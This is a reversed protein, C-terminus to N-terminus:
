SLVVSSTTSMPLESIFFAPSTDSPESMRFDQIETFPLAPVLHAKPVHVLGDITQSFAGLPFTKGVNKFSRSITHYDNLLLVRDSYISALQLTPGNTPVCTENRPIQYM